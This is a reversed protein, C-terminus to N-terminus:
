SQYEPLLLSWWRVQENHFLNQVNLADKPEAISGEAKLVAPACSSTKCMNKDLLNDKKEPVVSQESTAVSISNHPNLSFPSLSFKFSQLHLFVVLNRKDEGERTDTRVKLVSFSCPVRPKGTFPRTEYRSCLRCSYNPFLFYTHVCWCLSTKSIWVVSKSTFHGAQLHYCEDVFATVWVTVM